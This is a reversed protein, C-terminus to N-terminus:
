PKAGSVTRAQASLAAEANGLREWLHVYDKPSKNAATWDIAEIADRADMWETLLTTVNAQLTM